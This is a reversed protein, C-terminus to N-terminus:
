IAQGGYQGTVQPQVPAGALSPMQFGSVGSLSSPDFSPLPAATPITPQFQVQQIGYQAGPDQVPVITSGGDGTQIMQRQILREDRQVGEPAKILRGTHGLGSVIPKVFVVEAAKLQPSIQAGFYVKDFRIASQVVHAGKDLAERHTLKPWENEAVGAVYQYYKTIFEELGTQKNVYSMIPTYLTPHKTEDFQDGGGLLMNTMGSPAGAKTEKKKRYVKRSIKSYLIDRCLEKLRVLQLEQTPWKGANSPDNFESRFKEQADVVINSGIKFLIEINNSLVHALIKRLDNNIFEITRKEIATWDKEAPMKSLKIAVQWKEKKGPASGDGTVATLNPAGPLAVMAPLTSGPAKTKQKGADASQVGYSDGEIFFFPRQGALEPIAPSSATAPVAPSYGYLLDGDWYAQDKGDPGKFTHQVVSEIPITFKSIDYKDIDVQVLTTM